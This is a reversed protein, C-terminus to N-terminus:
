VAKLAHDLDAIIDDITEIGVSLRVVEPDAGAAGLTAAVVTEYGGTAELVVLAVPLRNLREVLAKLGEADRAVSFAEGSPRLHGDLRDKSVDLGVCVKPEM